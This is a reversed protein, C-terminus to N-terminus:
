CGRPGDDDRAAIEEMAARYDRLVAEAPGAGAVRGGELWLVEDYGDLDRPDHTIHVLTAEVDALIRALRMRTPIDLGSFPEDLVIVQPAMALIAM